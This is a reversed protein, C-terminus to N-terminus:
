ATGVQEVVDAPSASSANRPCLLKPHVVLGRMEINDHGAGYSLDRM